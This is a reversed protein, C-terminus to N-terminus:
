RNVLQKLENMFSAADFPKPFYADFGAELVEDAMGTSHYATIAACPVNRLRPTQRITHLLEWGNIGPLALDIIILTPVTDQLITLAAEGDVALICSVGHYHLISHVLDMSDAEDEVVLVNWNDLTM